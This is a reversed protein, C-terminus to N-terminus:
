APWLARERLWGFAWSTTGQQLDELLALGALEAM